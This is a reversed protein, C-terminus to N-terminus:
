PEIGLRPRAPPLRDIAKMMNRDGEGKREKFNIQFFMNLFLFLPCGALQSCRQASSPQAARVPSSLGLFHMGPTVGKHNEGCFGLTQKRLSVFRFFTWFVSNQHAIESMVKGM